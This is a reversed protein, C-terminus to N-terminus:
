EVNLKNVHQSMKRFVSPSIGIQKKFTMSFHQINVYGCEIAIDSVSLSSNALLYKGRDMRRETVVQMITKQLYQKFLHMLYGTSIHVQNAIQQPTIDHHLNHAMYELAQNVYRYQDNSTNEKRIHILRNIRILLCIIEAKVLADYGEQKQNMELAIRKMGNSIAENDAIKVYLGEQYISDDFIQFLRSEPDAAAPTEEPPPINASLQVNVCKSGSNGAMYLRHQVGQRIIILDRKSLTITANNELWFNASGELCCIIEVADHRHPSGMSWGAEFERLYYNFMFRSINTNQFFDVFPTALNM